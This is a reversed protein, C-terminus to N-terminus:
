HDCPNDNTELRGDLFSRVIAEPEEGTAGLVVQIDHQAFLSQARTGIGAAIIVTAGQERLWAPLKGPEHPPPVLERREGLMGDREHVEFLAFRECHGFHTSLRGGTLPLAITRSGEHEQRPTTTTSRSPALLKQVIRSFAQATGSNPHAQVMPTGADGATVVDPELPIAGLYPVQMEEAMARGGDAGFIQVQKGCHPCTFASMNEIVGLVPLAVQRCFVVCRRVDQM